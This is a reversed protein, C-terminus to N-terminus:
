LNRIDINQDLQESWLQNKLDVVTEFNVPMSFWSRERFAAMNYNETYDSVTKLRKKLDILTMGETWRRLFFDTRSYDSPRNSIKWLDVYPALLKLECPFLAQLALTKEIGYKDITLKQCHTCSDDCRKNCMYGCANNIILEVKKGKAKIQKMLDLHYNHESNLVVVDCKDIIDFENSKIKNMCSYAIPITSSAKFQEVYNKMTVIYDPAGFMESFRELDQVPHLNESSPNNLVMRIGINYSRIVDIQDKLAKCNTYNFVSPVTPGKWNYYNGFPPSTYFSDIYDGYDNCLKNIEYSSTNIGPIGVVLTHKDVIM